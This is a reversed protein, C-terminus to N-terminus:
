GFFDFIYVISEIPGLGIAMLFLWFLFLFGLIPGVFALIFYGAVLILGIGVGASAAGVLPGITSPESEVTITQVGEGPINTSETDIPIWNQGDESLKLGL